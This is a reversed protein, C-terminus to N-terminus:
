DRTKILVVAGAGLALLFIILFLAKNKMLGSWTACVETQSSGAGWDCVSTQAVLHRNFVWLSLWQQSKERANFSPGSATRGAVPFYQKSNLRLAAACAPAIAARPCCKAPIPIYISRSIQM